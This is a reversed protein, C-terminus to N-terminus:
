VSVCQLGYNSERGYCLKKGRNLKLCGSIALVLTQERTKGPLATTSYAGGANSVLTQNM